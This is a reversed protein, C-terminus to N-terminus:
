LHKKLRELGEKIEIESVSGFCIRVFKRSTEGFPKGPVVAVNEEELLERAFKWSDKGTDIFVYMGGEPSTFREEYRELVKEVTEKRKQYKEVMEPIYNKSEDFAKSLAIQGPRNPCATTGRGSKGAQFIFENNKSAMWGVRWGTMSFNKSASNILITREPNIEAPSVHETGFVMRDYVEDSIIWLGNNEAIRVIDEIQKRNYVRGTPNEPTNIIIARTKQDIAEELGKERVEGNKLFRERVINVGANAAIMNYVSWSPDSTIIKDGPETITTMVSYLAGTGGTTVMINESTYETKGSEFDATKERVEEM